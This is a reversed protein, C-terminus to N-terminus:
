TEREASTERPAHREFFAVCVCVNEASERERRKEASTERPAHREFFAVCVCVRKEESFAKLRKV